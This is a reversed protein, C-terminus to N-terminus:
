AAQKASQREKHAVYHEYKREYDPVPNGGKTILGFKFQDYHEHCFGFKWANKGKCEKAVCHVPGSPAQPGGSESGKKDKKGKGM